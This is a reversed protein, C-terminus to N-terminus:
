FTTTRIWNNISSTGHFIQYHNKSMLSKTDHTFWESDDVEVPVAIVVM